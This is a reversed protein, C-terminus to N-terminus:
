ICAIILNLSGVLNWLYMVLRKLTNLTRIIGIAADIGETLKIKNHKFKNSVKKLKNLM